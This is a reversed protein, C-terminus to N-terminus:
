GKSGPAPGSPLSISGPGQAAYFSGKRSGGRRLVSGSSVYGPPLQTGVIPALPLRVWFCELPRRRRQDGTSEVTLKSCLASLEM